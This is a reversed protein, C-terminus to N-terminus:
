RQLADALREAASWADAYPLFLFPEALELELVVFRGEDDRVLDVRAYAPTGFRASVVDLAEQAVRVQDATAAHPANVEPAPLRHEQGADPLTVRKSAAHSFGGDFFVLPWEGDVAVSDLFPQVLVVQGAEQLRAVHARAAAHDAEDYAGADHSGAGVAPKVMVRGPPLAVVDGPSVFETAVVPM